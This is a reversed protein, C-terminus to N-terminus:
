ARDELALTRQRLLAACCADRIMLQPLVPAAKLTCTDDAKQIVPGQGMGTPFGGDFFAHRGMHLLLDDAKGQRMGESGPFECADDLGTVVEDNIMASDSPDKIQMLQGRLYQTEMVLGRLLRGQRREGHMLLKVEREIWGGVGLAQELGQSGLM